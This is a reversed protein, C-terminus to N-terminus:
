TYKGGHRYDDGCVAGGTEIPTQLGGEVKNFENFAAHKVRGKQAAVHKSMIGNM